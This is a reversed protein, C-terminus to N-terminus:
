NTNNGYQAELTHILQNILNDILKEPKNEVEKLVRINILSVLGHLVCWVHMTNLKAEEFTLNKYGPSSEIIASATLQVLRLATEKEEQALAEIDTGVYDAYKPTNSGLMIEYYDPQNLGFDIYAMMMKRLQEVRDESAKLANDIAIYLMEFGKIQIRLYIEDKGSFYNYINAATMGTKAAIKRMSFNNFGEKTILEIAANM